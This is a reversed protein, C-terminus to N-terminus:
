TNKNSKIIKKVIRKIKGLVRRYIPMKPVYKNVLKNFDIKDINEIFEKENKCHNVSKTMAINIDIAKDFDTKIYKISGKINDFLKRGKDSNVILLSVGKDDNFEPHISNIGWYDALTIDSIRYKKKFSCNYCSDRLCINSLFTRMFLDKSNKVSYVKTAFSIKMRFLSWGSDKNRFSISKIKEGKVSKQYDLYKQWVKPSPVGHCIIDQTYLKKYDKKLYSKLGEIQCPTGTFLVYKDQELFDKVKKYTDGINSQTYKSGMFKYLDKENKVFSHIVNFNKDFSAGFVVGNRKIIQKALLVFIGGSSSNLREDLNTNYCAYAEVMHENEKNNLVPCSKKCMGCDICKKQDIVPYKFGKEDDKMTIANKPCINMCAHCGCCKNKDIIKEMM